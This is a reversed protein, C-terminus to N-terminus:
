FRLHALQTRTRVDLKRFVKVLHYEVTSEGIFLRAAIERNTLGQAALRAVQSEQPTLQAESAAARPRIREGTAELEIRARDGFAEVGFERFLRLATRLEVRADLHRRERRLWEGYLLQSRALEIRLPTKGFHVISEQYLAEADTAGAELAQIRASMGLAWETPTAAARVQMWTSVYSLLETDGERSAAEALEGAAFTQYGLADSEIVQRAHALAEAHRGLGNYLVAAVYHAFFIVRGHGSKIATEIMAQILPVTRDTDGRLADILMTRNPTVLTMTSLLREEELLALAGRLDGTVIVHNALFNLAFQLQVLAGSERAVRVQREALALSAEYDWAETAILGALRNGTLWLLDDADDSGLGHDRFADLAATLAPTAATYGETVRTAIADLLLDATRPPNEAAATARAARAARAVLERDGPGGAWVAAALAELHMDRAARPAFPEIRQAASLLLEAAESSRRQDFAIKGRLEEALATRLESRPETDVISLLRLASEFAGADRKATAAALTRNARREGHPTLLAARELLAAAALLGGRARARGATRELEAAIKEDHGVTSCAWHWARRDADHIPDAVEALTRHVELRKELPACRYAAARVLPHRFYVGHGVELLGAREAPAAASWDLGLRQAASWLLAPDGKPEAAALALLTQTDPPLERLRKAFASELRGTLPIGASESLGEVLEATTWARPLELLALPNGRTESFIRDRVLPDTPGSVVSDFLRGADDTNLGGIRLEPLGALENEDSVDRTAILIVIREALLRRGVFGIAQMSAQDIWQADDVLWVIPQKKAATAVLDLAAIGVLFREPPAGETLGFVQDLVNRHLTTLEVNHGTLPGCLQQLGAYALEMESEVGGARCICFDDANKALDSLLASKGIGAEGRLVLVGARGERAGHLLAALRRQEERRGLLGHRAADLGLADRDAFAPDPVHGSTVFTRWRRRDSLPNSHCAEGETTTRITAHTRAL